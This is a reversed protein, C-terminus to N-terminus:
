EKYVTYIDTNQLNDVKNWIALFKNFDYESLKEVEEVLEDLTYINEYESFGEFIEPHNCDYDSIFIEESDEGIGINNFVEQIEETTAPLTLWEGVLKGNNYEHLNTIYIKFNLNKM